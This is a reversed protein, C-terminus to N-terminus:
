LDPDEIKGLMNTQIIESGLQEFKVFNNALTVNFNRDQFIAFLMSIKKSCFHSNLKQM